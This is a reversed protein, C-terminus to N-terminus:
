AFLGPNTAVPRKVEPRVERYAAVMPGLEAPEAGHLIV